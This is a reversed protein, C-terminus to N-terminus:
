LSRSIVNDGKDSRLSIAVSEMFNVFHGIAELNITDALFEAGHRYVGEESIERVNKIKVIFPLYATRTMYLRMAVEEGETFQGLDYKVDIGIGGVSIDYLNIEILGKEPIVAYAGIFETLITRKVQRREESIAQARQETIDTVSAQLKNKTSVPMDSANNQKAKLKRHASLDIVNNNAMKAGRYM